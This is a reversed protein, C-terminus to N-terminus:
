EEGKAEDHRADQFPTAKELDLVDVVGILIWAERAASAVQAWVRWRDAFGSGDRKNQSSQTVSFAFLFLFLLLLLSAQIDIRPTIGGLLVARSQVDSLGAYVTEEAAVERATTGLLDILRDEERDGIAAIGSAPGGFSVGTFVEHDLIRVIRCRTGGVGFAPGSVGTAGTTLPRSATDCVLDKQPTKQEDLALLIDHAHIVPADRISGFHFTARIRAKGEIATLIAVWQVHTEAACAATDISLNPMLAAPAASDLPAVRVGAVLQAALAEALIPNTQVVIRAFSKSTPVSAISAETKLVAVGSSDVDVAVAEAFHCVAVVQAGVDIRQRRFQAGIAGVVVTVPL